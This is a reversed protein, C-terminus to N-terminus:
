LLQWGGSQIVRQFDEARANDIDIDFRRKKIWSHRTVSDHFRAEADVFVFLSQDYGSSFSGRPCKSAIAKKPM